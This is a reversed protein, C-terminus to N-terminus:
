KLIGKKILAEGTFGRKMRRLIVTRHIGTERSWQTLNQTRGGIEIPTNNSRNNAQEVRTAWVCNEPCYGKDRDVREISFDPGPLPGMDDLFNAFSALWRECVAIGRGGYNAFRTDNPNYCRGKMASWNVYEPRKVGGHVTAQERRTKSTCEHCSHAKGRRLSTGSAQYRKGCKCQCLWAPKGGRYGCREIVLVGNVLTDAMNVLANM